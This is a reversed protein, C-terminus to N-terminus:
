SNSFARLSTTDDFLTDAELIFFNLSSASFHKSTRESRNNKLETKSRRAEGNGSNTYESQERTWEKSHHV